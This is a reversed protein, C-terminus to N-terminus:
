WAATSVPSGGSAARAKRQATHASTTSYVSLPPTSVGIKVPLAM